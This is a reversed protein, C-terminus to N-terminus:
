SLLEASADPQPPQIAEKNGNRTCNLPGRLIREHIIEGSSIEPTHCIDARARFHEQTLEAAVSIMNISRGNVLLQESLRKGPVCSILIEGLDDRQRRSQRKM